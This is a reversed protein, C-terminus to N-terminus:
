LKEGSKSRKIKDYETRLYLVTKRSKFIFFFRGRSALPGKTGQLNLIAPFSLLQRKRGQEASEQEPEASEAASEPEAAPESEASKQESEQEPKGNRHGNREKADTGYKYKGCPPLLCLRPKFVFLKPDSVIRSEFM